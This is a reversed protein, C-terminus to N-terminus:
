GEGREEAREIRVRFSDLPQAGVLMRGNIFFTPTAPVGYSRGQEFDRMVVAAKRGSDICEEFRGEDLGLEGAYRKLSPVDLAVQNQLLHDHYEWFRGQEYACEAAEAAKLAHPHVHALPFNRSVYKVRDGFQSLLDPYAREFHRRCAPCQYDTFEVLTVPADEPGKYPRGEVSVDVPEPPSARELMGAVADAASPRLVALLFGALGGLLLGAAFYLYAKRIRFSVAGGDESGVGSGPRSVGEDM